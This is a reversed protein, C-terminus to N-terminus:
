QINAPPNAPPAVPKPLPSTGGIPGASKAADPLKGSSEVVQQALYNTVKSEDRAVALYARMQRLSVDM